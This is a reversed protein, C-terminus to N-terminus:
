AAVGKPRAAALQEDSPCDLCRDWSRPLVYGADTGCRRCTRRARLAAALARRQAPTATRKPKAAALPYLYAVRQRGYRTWVVCARPECGGPRLGLATLQRRTALGQPALGWRFCHFGPDDLPVSRFDVTVGVEGGTGAVLRLTASAARTQHHHHHTITM